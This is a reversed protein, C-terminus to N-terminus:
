DAFAGAKKIIPEWVAIQAKLSGEAPTLKKVEFGPTYFLIEQVPDLNGGGITFEAETGRQVGAPARSNISPDAALAITGLAVTGLTVTGLAVPAILALAASLVRTM